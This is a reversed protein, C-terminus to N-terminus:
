SLTIIIESLLKIKWIAYNRYKTGIYEKNGTTYSLNNKYQIEM